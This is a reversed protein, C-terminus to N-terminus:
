INKVIVEIRFESLVGDNLLYSKWEEIDEETEIRVEKWKNYDTSNEEFVAGIKIDELKLERYM